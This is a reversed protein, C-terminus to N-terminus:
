LDKDKELLFAIAVTNAEHYKGKKNRFVIYERKGSVVADALQVMTPILGFYTRKYNAITYPFRGPFVAIKRYRNHKEKEYYDIGDTFGYVNRDPKSSDANLYKYGLFASDSEVETRVVFYVPLVIIPKPLLNNNYLDDITIFVGMRKPYELTDQAVAHQSTFPTFCLFLIVLFACSRHMPIAKLSAIYDLLRAQCRLQKLDESPQELHLCLTVNFQVGSIVASM